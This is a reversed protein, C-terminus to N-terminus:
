TLRGSTSCGDTVPQVLVWPRVVVAWVLADADIWQRAQHDSVPEVKGANMWAEVQEADDDAIRAAVDILDLSPAVQIARGQAFFRQLERWPIKATEATLKAALLHPDETAETM